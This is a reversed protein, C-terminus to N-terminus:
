NALAGNASSMGTNTNLRNIGENNVNLQIPRMALDQLLTNTRDQIVKAAEAEQKRREENEESLSFLGMGLGVLGGIAAGWPGFMAGMGAYTATQGLVGITQKAGGEEMGSAAGSLAMGGIGLGMGVGMAKPSFAKFGGKAAGAAPMVSPATPTGAKTLTIGRATTITGGTAIGPTISGGMGKGLGSAIVHLPDMPRGTPKPMLLGKIGLTFLGTLGRIVGIALPLGLLVAGLADGLGGGTMKSFAGGWAELKKLGKEIFGFIKAMPGSAIKELIEKLKEFSAKQLEALSKQELDKQISESMAINNKKAYDLKEQASKAGSAALKNEFEQKRLMDGMESASMGFAEAYAKRQIVNMKEFQHINGVQKVIENTLKATDGSLAASRAKELNIAKGTLLEAKLENEISSEFNLLSEGIKDVQELTLGLRDAQVVAKTLETVNGKFKTLIEGSVSSVKQIIKQYSLTGGIQAKQQAATNMVTKLVDSNTQGIEIAYEALHANQEASLGYYHSLREATIAEKESFAVSTGLAENLKARGETIRKATVFANRQETSYKVASEYLAESQQKSINLQRAQDVIRQNVGGYLDYFKKFIAVSAAILVLPDKFAKLMSGAISKAATGMVRMQGNITLAHTSSVGLAKAKGEAAEKAKTFVDDLGSLGLKSTITEAGKLATGTLGIAEKLNKEEAIRKQTLGVIKAIYNTTTNINENNKIILKGSSEIVDKIELYQSAQKSLEKNQTQLSDAIIESEKKNKFINDLEQRQTALDSVKINIKKELSELDKLNLKSIDQTDYKLQDAFGSLSKFNKNIRSSLDNSKGLDNVVNRFTDSLDKFETEISSSFEKANKLERTFESSVAKIKEMRDLLEQGRLGAAKLYEEILKIDKPDLNEIAM